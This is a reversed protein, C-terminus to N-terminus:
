MRKEMDSRIINKRVCKRVDLMTMSTMDEEVHMLFDHKRRVGHLGINCSVIM